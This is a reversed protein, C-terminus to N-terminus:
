RTSKETKGKGGAGANQSFLAVGSSTAVRFGRYPFESMRGRENEQVAGTVQCLFWHYM